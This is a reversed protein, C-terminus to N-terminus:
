AIHRFGALMARFLRQIIRKAAVVPYIFVCYVTRGFRLERFIDQPLRGWKRQFYSIAQAAGRTTFEQAKGAQGLARFLMRRHCVFANNVVAASYGISLARLVIDQNEGGAYFHEDFGNLEEFLRKRAGLFTLPVGLTPYIPRSPRAGIKNLIDDIEVPSLEPKLDVDTGDGFKVNSRYAALSFKPSVNYKDEDEYISYPHVFGINPYRCLVMSMKGLTDPDVILADVSMCVIVDSRPDAAAAGRNFGGACGLNAGIEILKTNERGNVVERLYASTLPCLEVRSNNVLVLEAKTALVDISGIAAPLADPVTFVDYPDYVLLVISYLYDKCEDHRM